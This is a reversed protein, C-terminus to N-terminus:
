ADCAPHHIALQGPIDGPPRVHIRTPIILRPTARARRRYCRGGFLGGLRIRVSDPSWIRRGCDGCTPIWQRRPRDAELLTLQDDM